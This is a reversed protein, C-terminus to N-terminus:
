QMRCGSDAITRHINFTNHEEISIIYELFKERMAIVNKIQLRMAAKNPNTRLEPRLSGMFFIREGFFKKLGLKVVEQTEFFQEVKELRQQENKEESHTVLLCVKEHLMKYNNMVFEISKIDEIDVNAKMSIVFAFLHMNTIDKKICEDIASKIANNSLPTEQNKVKDYLGPTDVVNLSHIINKQMITAAIQHVTVEKTGSHIKADPPVYCPDELVKTVTTKGTRTKGM